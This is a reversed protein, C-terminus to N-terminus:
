PRSPEKEVPAVPESFRWVYWSVVLTGLGVLAISAFLFGLVTGGDPIMEVTSNWWATTVTLTAPTGPAGVLSILFSTAATPGTRVSSGGPFLFVYTGVTPGLPACTSSSCSTINVTVERCADPLPPCLSSSALRLVLARSGWSPAPTLDVIQSGSGSPYYLTASTVAPVSAVMGTVGLVLLEAGVLIGVLEATFTVKSPRSRHM